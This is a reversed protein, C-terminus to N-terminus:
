DVVHLKQNPKHHKVGREVINNRNYITASVLTGLSFWRGHYGSIAYTTRFGVVMYDHGRHGGVIQIILM